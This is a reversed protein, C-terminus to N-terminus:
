CNQKTKVAGFSQAPKECWYKNCGLIEVQMVVFWEFTENSKTLFVKEPMVSYICLCCLFPLSAVSYTTKSCTSSSFPYLIFIYLCSLQLVALSNLCYRILKSVTLAPPKKHTPPLKKKKKPSFTNWIKTKLHKHNMTAVLM